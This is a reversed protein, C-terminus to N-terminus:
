YINTLLLMQRFSGYLPRLLYSIYTWTHAVPNPNRLYEAKVLISSPRVPNRTKCHTDIAPLFINAFRNDRILTISCSCCAKGDPSYDSM